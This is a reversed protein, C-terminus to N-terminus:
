ILNRLMLHSLELPPLRNDEVAQVEVVQEVAALHRHQHRRQPQHRHELAVVQLQLEQAVALHALPRLRFPSRPALSPSHEEV